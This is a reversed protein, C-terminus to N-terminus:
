ASRLRGAGVWAWSAVVAGLWLFGVIFCDIASDVFPFSNLRPQQMLVPMLELEVFQLATWCGLWMPVVWGASALAILAKQWGAMKIGTM